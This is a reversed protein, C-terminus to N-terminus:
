KQDTIRKLCLKMYSNQNRMEIVADRVLEIFMQPWLIQLSENKLTIDAADKVLNQVYAQCFTKKEKLEEQKEALSDGTIYNLTAQGISERGLRRSDNSEETNGGPKKGKGEVQYQLQKKRSEGLVSLLRSHPLESSAVQALIGFLREAMVLDNPTVETENIKQLGLHYLRFIVYYKWLTFKVVRNGQPNITLQDLRRVQAVANFQKLVHLNTEEFKLHSVNPFKIKLKPLVPVIEDFDIFMFSVTTVAAATQVSWNRDVSELAGAGYLHLIDGELETLHSDVICLGQVANSLVMDSSRVANIGDAKTEQNRNETTNKRSHIKEDSSAPSLQSIEEPFFDEGAGNVQYPKQITINDDKCYTQDSANVAVRNQQIEWQRAINIIALRRKEKQVAQKHIERKKEQEKRALVSAMRREEETIKKMDLQQLQVMLRLFTQRYWSEQAVPNGDLTVESISSSEALCLIDEFSSINNYSLFLRQLSPLNDADRVSVIQNHRLNLEALSDLGKLNNVHVIYNKALNLVRLETLHNINEIKCIQNGHLDLVDLNILNELNSIKKIRNNGLMLVRLTTLASLGTVEEIQNDYLDLFILRQLKCLNQIRSISNHQFNLLRLQEEGKIIPCVKLNRRDLNLKDFSAAREEPTRHLVLIEQESSTEHDGPLIHMDGQSIPDASCSDQCSRCKPTSVSADGFALLSDDGSIQQFPMESSLLPKVRATAPVLTLKNRALPSSFRGDGQRGPYSKEADQNLTRNHSSIQERNLRFDFQKNPPATLSQVTLQLGCTNVTSPIVRGRYKNGPLM